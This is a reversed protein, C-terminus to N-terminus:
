EWSELPSHYRGLRARKGLRLLMGIAKDRMEEDKFQFRNRGYVMIGDKKDNIAAYQGAAFEVLPTSSYYNGPWEPGKFLDYAKDAVANVLETAKKINRAVTHAGANDPVDVNVAFHFIADADYHGPYADVLVAAAAQRITAQFEQAAKKLDNM